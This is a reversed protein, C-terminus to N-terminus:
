SETLFRSRQGKGICVGGDGGDGYRTGRLGPRGRRYALGGEASDRGVMEPLQDPFVRPPQHHRGPAAMKSYSWGGSWSLESTSMRMQQPQEPGFLTLQIALPLNALAQRAKCVSDQIEQEIKFLSGAEGALWMRDWVECMLNGLVAPKLDCTFEGLLDYERPVAEACVINVRDIRLRQHVKLGM